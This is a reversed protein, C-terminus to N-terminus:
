RVTQTAKLSFCIPAMDISWPQTNALFLRLFCISDPGLCPRSWASSPAPLQFRGSEPGGSRCVVQPMPHRHGALRLVQDCLTQLFIRPSAALSAHLLTNHKMMGQDDGDRTCSAVHVNATRNELNSRSNTSINIDQKTRTQMTWSRWSAAQWKLMTGRTVM